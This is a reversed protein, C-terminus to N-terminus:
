QLPPPTHMTSPIISLGGLYYTSGRMKWLAICRRLSNMNIPKNLTLIQYVCSCDKIILSPIGLIGGLGEAVVGSVRLM